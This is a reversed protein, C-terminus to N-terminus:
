KKVGWKDKIAKLIKRKFSQSGADFGIYLWLGEDEADKNYPNEPLEMTDLEKIFIAIQQDAIGVRTKQNLFLYGSDVFLEYEKGIQLGGCLSVALKERM